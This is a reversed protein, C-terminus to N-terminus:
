VRGRPVTVWYIRNFFWKAVHWIISPKPPNPPKDYNFILITAKRHGTELFCTVKGKYRLKSASVRKNLKNSQSSQTGNDALSKRIQEVVVPAEFHATSGSKSIPLNTTDGIGYVGELGVVELTNPDVALWGSKDALGSETVFSAPRHPPILVALDYSYTEGEISTLEHKEPDVTDVNVFTELEIGREEFLPQVMKSASEITFARNLPSLFRIRTKDRIKKKRLMEELLFAFEVPAPPCKYPMGAVGILITGGNFNNLAERLREAEAMSYFNYSGERLGPVKQEDSYSGTAIVLRDYSIEGDRELLVTKSTTDIKIANDIVVEIDTRLLSRLSRSLWGSNALGLAVYLFGPQYIHIGTPDIVRIRASGKPLRKDLLNATLTGGVGGGLIVIEEPM